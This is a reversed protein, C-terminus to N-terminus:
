AKKAVIQIVSGLGTHYQGEIIERETEHAIIFQLGNLEHMIDDLGMLVDINKPGGTDFHLQKPSYAELIFIGSNALAEVCQRHIAARQEKHIHFYISVIGQWYNKKFKYRTLDNHITNIKVQNAAALNRIKNLGVKSYDIATVNYGSQALFIANRGEGEGLSLVRGKPIHHAASVLFINPDKGYAFNHNRFRNDWKEQV